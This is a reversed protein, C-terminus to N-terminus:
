SVINAVLAGTVDIDLWYTSADNSTQIIVSGDAHLNGFISVDTAVQLSGSITGGTLPLYLDLSTDVDVLETYVDVFSSDLNVKTEYLAFSSDLATVIAADTYTVLSTDVADVAAVISGDVYDSTIRLALSAEIQNVEAYVSTDQIINYADVRVVSADLQNLETHVDGFSSDLNVKTEYLAFSGDLNLITEYLGFSGDLNLITEYLPFSADLATTIAGDTYTVLSTDVADVASVISGDVYDSTIRLALSAEIQNVEAYVSTDQIINYLDIRIVSADLQNINLINEYVSADIRIVSADLQQFKTSVDISQLSIENSGDIVIAAPSTGSYIEAGGQASPDGVTLLPQYGILLYGSADYIGSM